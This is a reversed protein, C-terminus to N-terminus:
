RKKLMNLFAKGAIKAGTVAAQKAMARNREAAEKERKMAAEREEATEREVLVGHVTQWVFFVVCGLIIWGNFSM